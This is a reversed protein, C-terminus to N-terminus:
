CLKWKRPDLIYKPIVNIIKNIEDVDNLLKVNNFLEYNEILQELNDVGIIVGDIWLNSKVYSLCLEKITNFNYKNKLEELLKIYSDDFICIKNWDKITGLLLGQLYISRVFITLNNRKKLDKWENNSFINFPIQLYEINEDNIIDKIDDYEYISIGLKKIKTNKLSILYNWIDKNHYNNVNHLLLIDIMETQLDQLSANIYKDIDELNNITPIKTIITGEIKSLYKESDYNRATDFYTINNNKCYELIKNIEDETIETKNTIGYKKNSLQATGVIFKM